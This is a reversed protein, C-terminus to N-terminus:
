FINETCQVVKAFSLFSPFLYSGRAGRFVGAHFAVDDDDDNDNDNHNSNKIRKEAKTNTCSSTMASISPLWILLDSVQASDATVPIGTILRLLSVLGILSHVFDTLICGPYM